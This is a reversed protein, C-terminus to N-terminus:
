YSRRPRGSACRSASARMGAPTWSGATSSRSAFASRAKMPQNEHFTIQVSTVQPDKLLEDVLERDPHWYQLGHPGFLVVSYGERRDGDAYDWVGDRYLRVLAEIWGAGYLDPWQDSFRLHVEIIRM